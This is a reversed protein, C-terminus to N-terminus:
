LFDTDGGMFWWDLDAAEGDSLVGARPIGISAVPNRAAAGSGSLGQDVTPSAWATLHEAGCRTAEVRCVACALSVADPPGIWDLWQM